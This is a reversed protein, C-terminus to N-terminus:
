LPQNVKRDSQGIALLSGVESKLEQYKCILSQPSSFLVFKFEINQKMFLEDDNKNKVQM